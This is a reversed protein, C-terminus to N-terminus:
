QRTLVDNRVGFYSLVVLPPITVGFHLAVSLLSDAFYHHWLAVLEAAPVHPLVVDRMLNDFGIDWLYWGAVSSVALFRVVRLSWLLYLTILASKVAM